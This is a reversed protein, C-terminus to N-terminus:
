TGTGPQPTLVSALHDALVEALLRHGNANLHGDYPLLHFPGREPHERFPVLADVFSVGNRRAVRATYREVAWPDYASRPVGVRACVGEIYPEWSEAVSPHAFFFFRSGNQAAVRRMRDLLAGYLKWDLSAASDPDLYMDQFDGLLIRQNKGELRARLVLLRPQIWRYLASKQIWVRPGSGLRHIQRRVNPPHLRLEGDPELSFRPKPQLNASALANGGFDNLTSGYATIDPHYVPLWREMLILAQDTSYGLVGANIVEADIGRERLMAELESTYIEDQPVDRGVVMSDGFIMIRTVGPPKSREVSAPILGDPNTRFRVVGHNGRSTVDLDPRNVWGLQPDVQWDYTGDRFRWLEEPVFLRVGAELVLLMVLLAAAALGLRGLLDRLM